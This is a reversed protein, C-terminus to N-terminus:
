RIISQMQVSGGKHGGNNEDDMAVFNDNMMFNYEGMNVMNEHDSNDIDSLAKPRILGTQSAFEFVDDIVAYNINNAKFLFMLHNYDNRKSKDEQKILRVAKKFQKRHEQIQQEVHAESGNINNNDVFDIDDTEGEEDDFSNSKAALHSSQVNSSKQETDTPYEKHYKVEFSFPNLDYFHNLIIDTFYDKKSVFLDFCFTKFEEKLENINANVNYNNDDDSLLDMRNLRQICRIIFGRRQISVSGIEFTKTIDIQPYYISIFQKKLESKLGKRRKIHKREKSNVSTMVAIHGKLKVEIYYFIIMTDILSNKKNCNIVVFIIYIITFLLTCCFAPLLHNSIDNNTFFFYIIQAILHPICEICLTTLLITNNRFYLEALEIWSIGCDTFQIGFLNSSVLTLMPYTNGGTLIVFCMFWNKYEEFWNKTYINYSIIQQMKIAYHINLIVRFVIFCTVIVGCITIVVANIDHNSLMEISLNINTVVDYVAFGLLILSFWNVSDVPVCFQLKYMRTCASVCILIAVCGLLSWTIIWFIKMNDTPENILVAKLDTSNGVSFIVDNNSFFIRFSQTVSQQWQISQSTKVMYAAYPDMFQVRSKIYLNGDKNHQQLIDYSTVKDKNIRNFKKFKVDFLSYEPLLATDFYNQEILEEMQEIEGHYMNRIIFQYNDFTLNKFVYIIDMKMIFQIYITPLRTPAQTPSITPSITPLITPSVTPYKIPAITPSYTPQNTPPITPINTPSFTPPQTPSVQCIGNCHLSVIDSLEIYICDPNSQVFKENNDVYQPHLKYFMNCSGNNNNQQCIVTVDQCPLLSSKYEENMLQQMSTTSDNPIYKIYKGQLGCSITQLHSLFGIKNYLQINSSYEYMLLKTYPGDAYIKLFDCSHQKYCSISTNSNNNSSIEDLHVIVNKCSDIELCHLEARAIGTANFTLGDCSSDGACTIIISTTPHTNTTIKMSSCSSTETCIINCGISSNCYIETLLCAIGHQCYYSCGNPNNCDFQSSGFDFQSSSQIITSYNNMKTYTILATANVAIDTGNTTTYNNYNICTENKAFSIHITSLILLWNIILNSMIMTSLRTNKLSPCGQVFEINCLCWYQKTVHKNSM